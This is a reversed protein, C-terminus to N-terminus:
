TSGKKNQYMLILARAAAPNLRQQKKTIVNGATSFLREVPASSAPIALFNLKRALQFLIPFGVQNQKWWDLAPIGPAVVAKYRRIESLVPAAKAVQKRLSALTVYKEIEEESSEPEPTTTKDGVLRSYQVELLAWTDKKKGTPIVHDKLNPDLLTALYLAEPMQDLNCRENLEKLIASGFKKARAEICKFAKLHQKLLLVIEVVFPLTPYQHGELTSIAEAVPALVQVIEIMCDWDKNLFAVDVKELSPLIQQIAPRLRLFRQLMLFTSAWRTKSDTIVHVPRGNPDLEQQIQDL